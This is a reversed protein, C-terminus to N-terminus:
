LTLSRSMAGLIHNRIQPDLPAPFDSITQRASRSDSSIKPSLPAIPPGPRTADRFHLGSYAHLFRITEKNPRPNSERWSWENIVLVIAFCSVGLTLQNPLIANIIAVINDTNGEFANCTSSKVNM